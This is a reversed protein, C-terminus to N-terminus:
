PAQTHAEPKVPTSQPTITDVTVHPPSKVAVAPLMVTADPLVTAADPVMSLPVEQENLPSTVDVKPLTATPEDSICVADVRVTVAPLM